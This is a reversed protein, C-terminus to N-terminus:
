VGSYLPVFSVSLNAAGVNGSAKVLQLTFNNDGPYATPWGNASVKVAYSVDETKGNPLVGRAVRRGRDNYLRITTFNTSSYASGFGKSAITFSGGRNDTVTLSAPRTIDTISIDPIVAIEGYNRVNVGGVNLVTGFILTQQGVPNSFPFEFARSSSEASTAVAVGGGYLEWYPTPCAIGVVVREDQAFISPDVSEVYGRIVIDKTDTIFRVSIEEGITFIRYLRNRATEVTPLMPKFTLTMDRSGTRSGRFFGGYRYGYETMFMTAKVPGIGDAGVLAIGSVSFDQLPIELSEYRTYIVIKEIM